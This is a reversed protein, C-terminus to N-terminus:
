EMYEILEDLPEDFDASMWVKNKAVGYFSEIGVNSQSSIEFPIAKKTVVQRLFMNIATTMDIGLTNLLMQAQTKLERDTRINITTGVM